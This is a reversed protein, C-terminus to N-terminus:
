VHITHGAKRGALAPGSHFVGWPAPFTRCFCRNGARHKESTSPGLSAFESVGVARTPAACAGAPTVRGTATGWGPCAWSPLLM